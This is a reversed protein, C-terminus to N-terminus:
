LWTAKLEPQRESFLLGRGREWWRWPRHKNQVILLTHRCTCAQLFSGHPPQGPLQTTHTRPCTPTTNTHAQSHTTILTQTSKHLLPPPSVQECGGEPFKHPHVWASSPCLFDVSSVSSLTLEAERGCGQGLVKGRFQVCIRRVSISRKWLQDQRLLAQFGLLARPPFHSRSMVCPSEM